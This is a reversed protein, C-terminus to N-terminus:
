DGSNVIRRIFSQAEEPSGPDIYLQLERSISNAVLVQLQAYDGILSQGEPIQNLDRVSTISGKGDHILGETWLFFYKEIFQSALMREWCIQFATIPRSGDKPNSTFTM